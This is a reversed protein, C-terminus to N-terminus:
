KIKKVLSSLRESVKEIREETWYKGPGDKAAEQDMDEGRYSDVIVGNKVALVHPVYVRPNGEDDKALHNEILSIIKRYDETNDARDQRINFYMVKNVGEAKAAKDVFDVMFQCWPCEKFGLFVIGTGNELRDITQKASAERFVHNEVVRPYDERFNQMGISVRQRVYFVSIVVVIVLFIVALIMFRKFNMTPAASTKKKM